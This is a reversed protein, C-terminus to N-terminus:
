ALLVEDDNGYRTDVNLLVGNVHYLRNDFRSDFRNSLLSFTQICSVVPKGVPQGVPQMTHVFM